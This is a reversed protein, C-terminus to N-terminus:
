DATTSASVDPSSLLKTFYSKILDNDIEIDWDSPNYVKRWPSGTKHTWNSLSLASLDKTVKWTYEIADNAKDDLKFLPFIVPEHYKYEKDTIPRSGFSKFAHYITPVVPGFKWAEFKEEILREGYRALHYGHAFFVMKQLKMQTVFNGEGIGKKVFAYAIVSAPYPM